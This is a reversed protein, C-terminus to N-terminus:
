IPSWQSLWATMGGPGVYFLSRLEKEPSQELHHGCALRRLEPLCVYEDTDMEEVMEKVDKLLGLNNLSKMLQEDKARPGLIVHPTTNYMQRAGESLIAETELRDGWGDVIAKRRARHEATRGSRCLWNIESIDCKSGLCELRLRELSRLRSLLCLGAQLDYLQSCVPETINPYMCNPPFVIHLDQLHPCVRSIYGCAIRLNQLERRRGVGHSHLELHLTDLDQCIWIGPVTLTSIEQMVKVTGYMTNRHFLDLLDAMYPMKLTKLHRLVSGECLLQHLPLATYRSGDDLYHLLWGDSHCNAHDPLLIDLATLFVLQEMLGSLVRSTLNYLQFTREKANPCITFVMEELEYETPFVKATSYHFQKLPLSLSQLHDCFHRWNWPQENGNKVIGILKLDELDPTITLLDEIWSQSNYPRKLVLSRLPLREPLAEKGRSTWPKVVLSSSLYLHELLPCIALIRGVDLSAWPTKDITLSTLSQPFALNYIWDDTCNNSVTLV